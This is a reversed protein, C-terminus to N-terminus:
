RKFFGTEKSAAEPYFYACVSWKGDAQRRQEVEAGVCRFDQTVQDLVEEPVDTIREVKIEPAHPM